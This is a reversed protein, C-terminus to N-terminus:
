SLFSALGNSGVIRGGIEAVVCYFGPNSFMVAVNVQAVLFIAAQPTPNCATRKNLYTQTFGSPFVGSTSLL